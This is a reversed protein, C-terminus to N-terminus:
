EDSVKANPTNNRKRLVVYESLYREEGCKFCSDPEWSGGIRDGYKIGLAKACEACLLVTETRLEM